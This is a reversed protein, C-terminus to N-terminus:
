NKCGQQNKTTKFEALICWYVDALYQTNLRLLPYFPGIFVDHALGFLLKKFIISTDGISAMPMSKLEMNRYYKNEM